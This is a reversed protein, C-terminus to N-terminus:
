RLPVPVCSNATKISGNHIIMAFYFVRTDNIAAIIGYTADLIIPLKKARRDYIEIDSQTGLSISFPDVNFSQMFGKIIKDTSSSEYFGKLKMVSTM